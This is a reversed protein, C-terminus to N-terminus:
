RTPRRGIHEIGRHLYSIGYPNCAAIPNAHINGRAHKAPTTSTAARLVDGNSDIFCYVFCNSGNSAVVKTYRRGRSATLIRRPRGKSQSHADLMAQAQVLFNQLATTHDM